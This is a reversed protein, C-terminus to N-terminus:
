QGSDLQDYVGYAASQVLSQQPHCAPSPGAPRTHQIAPQVGERSAERVRPGGGSPGWAPSFDQLASRRVCVASAMVQRHREDATAGIDALRLQKPPLGCPLPM